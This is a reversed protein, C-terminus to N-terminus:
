MYKEENVGNRYKQLKRVTNCGVKYDIPEEEQIHNLHEGSDTNGPIYKEIALVYDSPHNRMKKKKGIVFEVPERPTYFLLDDSIQSDKMNHEFKTKIFM